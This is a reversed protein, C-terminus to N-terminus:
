VIVPLYTCCNKVSVDTLLHWEAQTAIHCSLTILTLLVRCFGGIVNSGHVFISPRSIAQMTWEDCKKAVESVVAELTTVICNNRSVMSPACICSFMSCSNRFTRGAFSAAITSHIHGLTTVHHLTISVVCSLWICIPQLIVSIDSWM